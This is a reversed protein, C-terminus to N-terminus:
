IERVQIEASVINFADENYYESFFKPTNKSLKLWRDLQHKAAGFSKHFHKGVPFENLFIRAGEVSVYSKGYKIIYCLQKTIDSM